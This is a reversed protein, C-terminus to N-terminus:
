LNELEILHHMSSDCEVAQLLSELLNRGYKALFYNLPVIREQLGGKPFLHLATRKLQRTVEQHKKKHAAFAKKRLEEIEHGVRGASRKATTILGEDQQDLSEVLEHLIKAVREEARAFREELDAPFSRAFISNILADVEGALATIKLEHKALVRADQREVLTASFRPYIIPPEQGFLEYLDAIQALYAAEAPGVFHILTPFLQSQVIPRLFVNPSFRDPEKKVLAEMEAQSYLHEGAKFGEETLDIRLRKGDHLFLNTYDDPRTVQLHYGRKILQENRSAVSTLSRHRLEIERQFIPQALRRLEPDSPDVLILGHGAFLRALYCGFAQVLSRGPQYCERLIEVIGSRFESEPLAQEYQDLLTLIGEDLLVESMSWGTLDVQPKFVFEALQEDGVPLWATAAEALDADDAALWFVPVVETKLRHCNTAAVKVALAAKYFAYLPGGFLTVQQGTVVALTAPHGLKEINAFTAEDSGFSQNQRKLAKVLSLRDFQRSKLHEQLYEYSESQHYSHKYFDVARGALFDLWLKSSGPLDGFDLLKPLKSESEEAM